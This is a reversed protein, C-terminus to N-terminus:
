DICADWYQKGAADHFSCMVNTDLFGRLMMGGFLFAMLLVSANWGPPRRSWAAGIRAALLENRYVFWHQWGWERAQSGPMMAERVASWPLEQWLVDADDQLLPAQAAQIHALAAADDKLVACCLLSRRWDFPLPTYQSVRQPECPAEVSGNEGREAQAASHSAAPSSVADGALPNACSDDIDIDDGAAWPSRSAVAAKSPVSKSVAGSALSHVSGPQILGPLASKTRALAAAVDSRSVGRYLTDGRWALWARGVAYTLFPGADTMLELVWQFAVRWLVDELPLPQGGIRTPLRFFIAVPILTLMGIDEAVTDGVIYAYNARMDKGHQEAPTLDGWRRRFALLEASPEDRLCRRVPECCAPLSLRPLGSRLAQCACTNRIWSLVKGLAADRQLVTWRMTVELAAVALSLAITLGLSTMGTTCFRGVVSLVLSIPVLMFGRSAGPVNGDLLQHDPVRTLLAIAEAMLPVVVLRVAVRVGDGSQLFVPLVVYLALAVYIAALSGHVLSLLIPRFSVFHLHRRALVAWTVGGVLASAYVGVYFPAFFKEPVMREFHLTLGLSWWSLMCAPPLLALLVVALRSPLARDSLHSLSVSGFLTGALCLGVGSWLMHWVM